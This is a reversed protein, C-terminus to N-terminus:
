PPKITTLHSQNAEKTSKQKACNRSTMLMMAIIIILFRASFQEIDNQFITEVQKDIEETVRFTM